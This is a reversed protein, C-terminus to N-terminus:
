PAVGSGVGASVASAQVRPAMSFGRVYFGFSVFDANGRPNPLKGCPSVSSFSTFGAFMRSTISADRRLLPRTRRTHHAAKEFSWSSPKARLRPSSASAICDGDSCCRAIIWDPLALAAAGAGDSVRDSFMDIILRPDALEAPGSDPSFRSVIFPSPTSRRM